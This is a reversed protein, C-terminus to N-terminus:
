LDLFKKVFWKRLYLLRSEAMPLSIRRHSDSPGESLMPSNISKWTTTKRCAIRSVVTAQM